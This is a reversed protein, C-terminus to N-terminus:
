KRVKNLANEIHRSTRRDDAWLVLLVPTAGAWKKTKAVVRGRIGPYDKHTVQDGIKM